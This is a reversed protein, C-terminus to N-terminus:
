VDRGLGSRGSKLAPLRLWAMDRDAVRGPPADSRMAPRSASMITWGWQSRVM